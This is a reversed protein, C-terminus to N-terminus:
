AFTEKKNKMLDFVLFLSIIFAYLYINKPMFFVNGGKYNLLAFSIIIIMLGRHNKSFSKLLFIVLYFYAFMGYIGYRYIEQPYFGDTYLSGASSEKLDYEHNPVFLMQPNDAVHKFFNQNWEQMVSFSSSAGSDSHNLMVNLGESVWEGRVYNLSILANILVVFFPVILILLITLKKLSNLITGRSAFLTMLIINLPILVLSSRSVFLQSIYICIILLIIKAKQSKNLDAVLYFYYISSALITFYVAATFFDKFVSTYRFEMFLDADLFFFQPKYLYQVWERANLINLRQFFILLAPLSLIYFSKIAVDKFEDYSSETSIRKINLYLVSMLCILQACNRIVFIDYNNVPKGAMVATFVVSVFFLILYIIFIKITPVPLMKKVNFAFLIYIYFEALNIFHGSVDIVPFFIFGFLAIHLFLVSKM